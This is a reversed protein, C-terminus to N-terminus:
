VHARGIETVAGCDVALRIIKPKTLSSSKECTKRNLDCTYVKPPM